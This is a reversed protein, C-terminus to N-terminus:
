ATAFGSPGVALSAPAAFQTNTQAATSHNQKVGNAIPTHRPSHIRQSPMKKGRPERDSTPLAASDNITPEAPTKTRRRWRCKDCVTTCPVACRSTTPVSRMSAHPTPHAPIQRPVHYRRCAAALAVVTGNAMWSPQRTTATPIRATAPTNVLAAVAITRAGCACATQGHATRCRCHLDRTNQM